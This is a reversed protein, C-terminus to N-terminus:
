IRDAGCDKPDQNSFLEKAIWRESNNKYLIETLINLNLSAM